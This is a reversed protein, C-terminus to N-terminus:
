RDTQKFKGTVDTARQTSVGDVPADKKEHVDMSEM